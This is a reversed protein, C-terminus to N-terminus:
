AVSILAIGLAALGLGAGQRRAIQERLVLRALLITFGPYLSTIVVVLSLLGRQLAALFVINAVMDACGVGLAWWLVPPGAVLPRRTGLALASIAPISALRAGVLPWLGSADGTRSLFIGFLGFAIGAATGIAVARISHLLIKGDVGRGSSILVLAPIALGVGLWALSAPREGVLVGFAVPVIAGTLAAAPAAVAIRTTALAHYLLVLGIAGAAGAAAGWGIDVALPGQAGTLLAAILVLALGSLHSTVVVTAAPARRATFGGLFDASGIMASALVAFVIAVPLLTPLGALRLIRPGNPM